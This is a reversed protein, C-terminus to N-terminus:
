RQRNKNLGTINSQIINSIFMDLICFAIFAFRCNFSLFEKFYHFNINSIFRSKLLVHRPRGMLHSFSTFNYLVEVNVSNQAFM